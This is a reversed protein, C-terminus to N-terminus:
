IKLFDALYAFLQDCNVITTMEM